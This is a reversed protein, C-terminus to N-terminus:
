KVVRMFILFAALALFGYAPILAEPLLTVMVTAAPTLPQQFLGFLSIPYNLQHMYYWLSGIILYGNWLGIVLNLIIGFPGPVPRGEFALTEGQYSIFATMIIVGAYVGYRVLNAQPSDPPSIRVLAVLMDLAQTIQKAFFTLLFLLFALVTTVGVEKLFGRVLGILGFVVVLSGWLVEIPGM